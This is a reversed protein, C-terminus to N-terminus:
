IKHITISIKSKTREKRPGQKKIRFPRLNIVEEIGEKTNTPLNLILNPGFCFYECHETKTEVEGLSRKKPPCQKRIPETPINAHQLNDTNQPVETSKHTKKSSENHKQRVDCHPQKPTSTRNSTKNQRPHKPEQGKTETRDGTPKRKIANSAHHTEKITKERDTEKEPNARTDIEFIRNQTIAFGGLKSCAISKDGALRLPKLSLKKFSSHVM